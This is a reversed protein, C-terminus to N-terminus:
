RRWEDASARIHNCIGGKVQACRVLSEQCGLFDPAPPYKTVHVIGGATTSSVRLALSPDAPLRAPATGAPTTAMPARRVLPWGTSAPLPNTTCLSSSRVIMQLQVCMRSSTIAAESFSAPINFGIFWPTAM